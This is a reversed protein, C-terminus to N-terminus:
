GGRLIVAILTIGLLLGCYLGIELYRDTLPEYRNIRVQLQGPEKIARELSFRPAILWALIAGGLLGGLHAFNGILIVNDSDSFTAAANAFFGLLFNMGMLIVSSRLHDKATDGMIRRHLLVYVVEAGWLAFMAGSAGAGGENLAFSLVSGGLGGLFYIVLFPLRGFIREINGGIYFLAMMNFMIHAENLHLFMSTFLRYWEGTQQIYAPDNVGAILLTLAVDESVYKLLFIAINIAMLAYTLVPREKLGPLPIGREGPQQKRRPEPSDSLPHSTRPTDSLPHGSEPRSESM